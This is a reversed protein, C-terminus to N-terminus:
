SRLERPGLISPAQGTREKAGNWVVEVADTALAPGAPPAAQTGAASGPRLPAADKLSFRRGSTKGTKVVLREGVLEVLVAKVQDGTMRGPTGLEKLSVPGGAQKLAALVAQRQREHGADPPAARQRAPSTTAASQPRELAAAPAHVRDIVRAIRRLDEITKAVLDRYAELEILAAEIASM